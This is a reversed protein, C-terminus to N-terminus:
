MLSISLCIFHSMIAKPKRAPEETIKFKEEPLRSRRLNKASDNFNRPNAANAVQIQVKREKRMLSSASMIKTEIASKIASRTVVVKEIKKNWCVSLSVSFAM